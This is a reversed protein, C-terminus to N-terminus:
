CEHRLDSSSDTEHTIRAFESFNLRPDSGRGYAREMVLYILFGMEWWVVRRCVGVFGVDVMRLRLGM